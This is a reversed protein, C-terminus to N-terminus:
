LEPGSDEAVHEAVIEQQSGQEQRQEDAIKFKTNRYIDHDSYPVKEGTVRTRTKGELEGATELFKDAVYPTVKERPTTADQIRQVAQARQLELQRRQEAQREKEEEERREKEVQEKHAQEQQEKEAQERQEAEIRANEEQEQREQEQIAKDEREQQMKDMERRIDETMEPTKHQRRRKPQQKALMASLEDNMDFSGATKVQSEKNKQLRETIADQGYDTGLKNNRSKRSKGDEDDFSYTMYKLNDKWKVGVGHNDQMHEIFADRDTVNSDELGQEIRERLDDKWVYKGSAALRKEQSTKRNRTADTDIPKLGHRQIVDDTKESIDDWEKSGVQMQEGNVTVEYPDRRLSKGNVFSVSNVLVHNHLKGGEGDAQTVILAQRDPYMESAFEKGIANAKEIDEPNSPDLENDDFSQIIRYMQVAEGDDKGYAKWTDRMQMMASQPDTNSGSAMLVRDMGEKHSQEELAYRIAATGNKTNTVRTYAM